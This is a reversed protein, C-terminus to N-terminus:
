DTWPPTTVSSKIEVRDFDVTVASSTLSVVRLTVYGLQNAEDSLLQPVNSYHYSYTNDTGKIYIRLDRGDRVAALKNWEQGTAIKNSCEDDSADEHNWFENVGDKQATVWYYPKDDCNSDVKPYVELVWRTGTSDTSDAAADFQIGYRLDDASSTRKAKVMFTGYFQRPFSSKNNWVICTKNKHDASITVRYVSNGTDYTGSCGSGSAVWGSNKNTFDDVWNLAPAPPPPGFIVPLYIYSTFAATTNEPRAPPLANASATPLESGVGLLLIALAVVASALVVLMRAYRGLKLTLLSQM